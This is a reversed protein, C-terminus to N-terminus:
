ANLQGQDDYYVLVTDDPTANPKDALGEGAVALAYQTNWLIFFRRKFSKNGKGEKRLWGTYM